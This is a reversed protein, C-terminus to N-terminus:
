QSIGLARLRDEFRRDLAKRKQATELAAYQRAGQGARSMFQETNGEVLDGVGGGISGGLAAGAAMGAPGGPIGALAGGVTGLAGLIGQVTEDPRDELSPSEGESWRTRAGYLGMAARQRPTMMAM